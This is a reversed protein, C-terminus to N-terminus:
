RTPAPSSAASQITGPGGTLNPFPKDLPPISVNAFAADPIGMGIGAHAARWWGARRGTSDAVNIALGEVVAAPSGILGTALGDIVDGLHPTLLTINSVKVDVELGFVHQAADVPVTLIRTSRITAPPLASVLVQLNSELQARAQAETVSGIRQYPANLPSDIARRLNARLYPGQELTPVPGSPTLTYRLIKPNRAAIVGGALQARWGLSAAAFLDGNAPPSPLAAFGPDNAGPLTQASAPTTISLTFASGRSIFRVTSGPLAEGIRANVDAQEASTPRAPSGGAGSAVAIVSAVGLVVALILLGLRRTM